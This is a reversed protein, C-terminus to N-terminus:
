RRAATATTLRAGPRPSTGSEPRAETRSRAGPTTPASAGRPPVHAGGHEGQQRFAWSVAVLDDPLDGGAACAFPPRAWPRDVGGDGLEIALPQHAGLLGVPAPHDMEGLLAATIGVLVNLLEGRHELIDALPLARAVKRAGLPFRDGSRRPM